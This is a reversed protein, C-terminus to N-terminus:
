DRCGQVTLLSEAPAQSHQGGGLAGFCNHLIRWTGVVLPKTHM